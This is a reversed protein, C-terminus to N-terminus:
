ECAVLLVVTGLGIARSGTQVEHPQQPVDLVAQLASRLPHCRGQANSRRLPENQPNQAITWAERRGLECADQMEMRTGKGSDQLPEDVLSQQLPRAVGVIAPAHPQLSKRSGLSEHNWRARRNFRGDVASQGAHRRMADPV